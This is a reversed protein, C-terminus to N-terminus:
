TKRGIWAIRGVVHVEDATAEIPPVTQNDSMLLHAGSPLRRVRKIVGLEGYTLAWIRDQQTITRQGRDVILTDSDLLTPMMSDGIGRAIFLMEPASRTIAQLWTPDFVRDIAEVAHDELFTGGGMGFGIDVEALQVFDVEQSRLRQGSRVDEGELWDVSVGLARAIAPLFRSTRSRGTVLQNIAGQTVGAARALDSQSLSAAKMADALRPLDVM